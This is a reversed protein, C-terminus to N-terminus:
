FVVFLLCRSRVVVFVAFCVVGFCLMCCVVSLVCSLCCRVVSLLCRVVNLWCCVVRLVCRVDFM